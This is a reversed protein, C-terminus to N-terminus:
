QTPPAWKKLLRGLFPDDKVVSAYPMMVVRDSSKPASATQPARQYLRQPAGRDPLLMGGSQYYPNPDSQGSFIPDKLYNPLRAIVANDGAIQLLMEDPRLDLVTDRDKFGTLNAMDEASVGNLAGFAQLNEKATLLKYIALEQPVVGLEPRADTRKLARGFM